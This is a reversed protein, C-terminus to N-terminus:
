CRSRWIRRGASDRPLNRVRRPVLAELGAFLAFLTLFSGMRWLLETEM